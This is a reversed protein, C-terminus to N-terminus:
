ESLVLRFGNKDADQGSIEYHRGSVTCSSAGGLWSGGRLIHDSGFQSGKPNSVPSRGFYTPDWLDSCWEWVNGSMDYIELENPKKEGVPHTKQGSNSGFWAVEEVKNSGSYIYGKSKNGGRAAYEWEAETPLRYEKDSKSNLTQLFKQIDIWSVQEVPCDKCTNNKSPNSGMVDFWQKQTVEYKGILFTSLSVPHAKNERDTTDKNGMTFSGEEVQIMEFHVEPELRLTDLFLSDSVFITQRWNYYGSFSLVLNHNGRLLLIKAPTYGFNHGDVFIGAGPPNSNISIGIPPPLVENLESTKGAFITITKSVDSFGQKHLRVQHIGPTLNEILLPTKLQRLITDIYISAQSPTSKIFLAGKTPPVKVQATITLTDPAQGSGPDASPQIGTPGGFMPNAGLSMIYVSGEEIATPFFYDKPIYGDKTFHIKKELPSIYLWTEGTKLAPNGTIGLPCEFKVGQIRTNIKLIACQKNNKDKRGYRRASTSLLDNKFSTVSFEQAITIEQFCLLLPLLFLTLNRM